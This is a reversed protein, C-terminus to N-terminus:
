SIPEVHTMTLHSILLSILPLYGIPTTSAYVIHHASDWMMSTSILYDM